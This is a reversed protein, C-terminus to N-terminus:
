RRVSSRTDTKSNFEKETQSCNSVASPYDRDRNEECDIIEQITACYGLFSLLAFLLLFKGITKIKM